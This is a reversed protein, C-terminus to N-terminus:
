LNNEKKYEDYAEVAFFVAEWADFYYDSKVFRDNQSANYKDRADNYDHACDAINNILAKTM